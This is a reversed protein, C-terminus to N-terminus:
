VSILGGSILGKQFEDSNEDFPLIENQPSEQETTLKM